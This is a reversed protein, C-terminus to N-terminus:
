FQEEGYADEKQCEQSFGEQGQYDPCGAKICEDCFAGPYGVVLNFCDRCACNQYGSPGNEPDGHILHSV